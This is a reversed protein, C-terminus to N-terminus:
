LIFYFFTLLSVDKLMKRASIADMAQKQHSPANDFLFLAKANGKSLGKFIDIASDVQM